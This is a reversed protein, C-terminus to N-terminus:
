TVPLFGVTFNSRVPTAKGAADTPMANPVSEIVSSRPANLWRNAAWLGVILVVGIVLAKFKM